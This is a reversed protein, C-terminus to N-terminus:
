RLMELAGPDDADFAAAPPSKGGAQAGGSQVTARGSAAPATGALFAAQFTRTSRPGALKGTDADVTAYEIGEPVPFDGFPRSYVATDMFEKWIPAAIRGGTERMGLSRNDDYGAWVATILNPTVGMFWADRADNTTGTKGAAQVPLGNAASGTGERIVAQMMNNVVCVVRPDIVPTGPAPPTFKRLQTGDRDQVSLIFAPDYRLGGTAFVGYASALELPTVGCAGLALSLNPEVNKLGARNLLDVAAGVGIDQLVKITVVNRSQVLAERITTPGYFKEGYNQPRWKEDFGAADYVIPSDYVIHAPTMGKEIAAAYIFPKIASGAQRRAQTVRDFQSRDFSYGGVEALVEGTHADLCVIAGEVKPIQTLAVGMRGTKDRKYEVLIVDGPYFRSALTRDGPLAWAADEAALNYERGAGALRLYDPHVALVLAEGRDGALPLPLSLFPEPNSVAHQRIAGRYGLRQDYAELGRRLSRQAAAQLRSDMTSAVKM